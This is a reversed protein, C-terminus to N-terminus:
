RGDRRRELVTYRQVTDSLGLVIVQRTGHLLLVRRTILGTMDAVEYPRGDLQVWSGIRIDGAGAPLPNLLARGDSLHYIGAHDPETVHVRTDLPRVQPAPRSPAPRMSPETRACPRPPRRRPPEGTRAPTSPAPPQGTTLVTFEAVTELRPLPLILAGDDLHLTRGGDRRSLLSTIECATDGVKIWSGTRLEHGGAPVPVTLIRGDPLRFRDPGIRTPTARTTRPHPARTTM